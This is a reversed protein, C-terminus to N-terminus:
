LLEVWAAVVRRLLALAEPVARLAPALDAEDPIESGVEGDAGRLLAALATRLEVQDRELVVAAALARLEARWAAVDLRAVDSAAFPELARRVRKRARRGLERSLDNVLKGDGSVAPAEIALEALLTLVSALEELALPVLAPASLRAEEAIAAARFRSAPDSAEPPAESPAGVGLASGIERAAEQAARRVAEALAPSLTARRDAGVPVRLPAERREDATASGLARLIGYGFTVAGDAGRGAAIRILARLSATRTPDAGLLARHRDVAEGWAEPVHTLLDALAESAEALDPTVALARRYVEVAGPVDELPGARLRGLQLLAHALGGPNTGPHAEVFRGLVEAAARWEGAGRLLRAAALATEPRTPDLEAARRFAAAAGARDGQRELAHGRLECLEARAPDADGIRELALTAIELAEATRGQSAALGALLRWGRGLDPSVGTAERLLAEAEADRAGRRLELEAARLLRAAKDEPRAGREAFGRLTTVAEGLRGLQELVDVAGAHAADLEPALDRAELFRALAPEPEGSGALASGLLTAFHARLSPSCPLALRRELAERAAPWDGTECLVEGLEALVEPNEPSAERAARLLRAAADLHGLARAARGGALSASLQLEAGLTSGGARLEIARSAAAEAAAHRGLRASALAHEAQATAHAADAEVARGLLEAAREADGGSLAAARVLREAAERGRSCAAARELADSAAAPEGAQERLRALEDWGPGHQPWRTLARELGERAEAARGLAERAAALRLHDVADSDAHECWRAFVETFREAQGAREYLQAFARLAEPALPALEEAREYARLARAVDGLKVAAREAVRMWLERRRAPEGAGLIEIESEYLDVAGRWDELCEFLEELSRLAALDTSDAELAAAFARSARTTSDLERWCVWGLKRWLAATEHANRAGGLELERELCRAVEPADRLREAVRRLGRLAALEGPERALVERYAAAAREPRHLREEYLRALELWHDADPGDALRAELRRALEVDHRADRLGALLGAEAERRMEPDAPHAGDVVARWHFTALDSRALESGYRRALERHLALRREGSVEAAPDLAALEAEGVRAWLDPRGAALLAEGCDRLLESRVLTSPPASCLAAWLEAAAAAPDGLEDRLCQALERRLAVYASRESGPLLARLAEARERPRGALAYLRALEGVVDRRAPDAARAEELAALARGTAGEAELLRACEIQLACREAPPPGAALEARLCALLVDAGSGVSRHTASLRKLLARDGPRLALLRTLWPLAAAPSVRQAALDAAKAYLAAREGPPLAAAEAEMAELVGAVDGAAELAARLGQRAHSDDPELALAQRFSAAADAPRALPGALLSARERLRRARQAPSRLRPLTADLLALHAEPDGLGAALALARESAEAHGPELELVRRLQALAEESRQLPGELLAALEIRLPLEGDGALGALEAELLRALPEPEGLRRYLDRLATRAGREDPRDGLVRRYADAADALRGQSRLADACRLSWQARELPGAALEAARQCLEILPETRGERQYLDALPEAAVLLGERERAAPELVGIASEPESLPGAYIAAIRLRLATEVERAVASGDSEAVSRALRAELVEALEAHQESRALEEVLFESARSDAPDLELIRQAHAVAAAPERLVDRYLDVLRARLFREREADPGAGLEGELARALSRADATEEFLRALGQWAHIRGPALDLARELCAIAGAPDHLRGHRLAAMRELTEVREVAPLADLGAELRACLAAFEGGRELLGRVRQEAEAARPGAAAALAEYALRAEPSRGLEELLRARELELEALREAEGGAAIRQALLEVLGALDGSERLAAELGDEARTRPEGALGGLAERYLPAAEAPRALRERLLDARRLALERAEASDPALSRRRTELQAALDEYRATRELLGELLGSLEPRPGSEHALRELVALAGHPDGLGDLLEARARLCDFREAGELLPALRGRIEALEALRGSRELPGLLARLAAVDAPDAELAAYLSDVAREGHGLKEHLEALRRRNAAREAGQLCLDLRGLTEVLEEHHGLQEQLRACCALVQADEPAVQALREIWLLAEEPEDKRERLRVLEWVLFSLRGRDSTVAAEREFAEIVAEDDGSQLAIRELGQLARTEGPDGALASQFAAQAAPADDFHELLLEGLRVDLEVAHRGTARARTAELLTRLADPRGAVRHLRTLAELAELDSPDADLAREFAREAGEPDGLTGDRLAALRRWLAARAAPDGASAAQQELLGALERSRGARALTEELAQLVRANTPDRRLALRLGDVAREDDGREGALLASEVLVSVPIADPAALAARSLWRAQAERNGALREVEGLALLIVPDDHPALELARGYWLRAGAPNRLRELQVAGAELAIALRRTAGTALDFRRELLEGCLAWQGSSSADECLADLAEECRPDCTLASRFLEVARERQGLPGAYLRALEVRPAASDPGRTRAVVQELVEAAAQAEGREARVRAVGRLAPLHMPDAELAREFQALAQQADRMQRQWIEGMQTFFAAREFPQMPLAAEVEAIQLVLDFSERATYIRRLQTLPARFRPARRASERYWTVARDGQLCREELVQGLRFCLRAAAEADDRLDPAELRREYLRVLEPWEGHLFHHEELLAFARQDKPDAEFRERARQLNADL